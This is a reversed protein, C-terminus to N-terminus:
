VPRPHASHAQHEHKGGQGSPGALAGSPQSLSVGQPVLDVFPAAHLQAGSLEILRCMCFLAGGTGRGTRFGQQADLLQRPHLAHHIVQVYVKGCVELLTM